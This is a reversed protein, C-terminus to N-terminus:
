APRSLGAIRTRLEEALEVREEPTLFAGLEIRRGSGRLTLYREIEKTDALDVDVWYPNAAWRRIRGWPERREVAIADHWLRLEETLRGTRYSLKLTLWLLALAAICYPALAFSLGTPALAILPLALGGATLAMVGRFGKRSLSRHPWLTVRWVPPDSRAFPDSRLAAPFHDEAAGNTENSLAM